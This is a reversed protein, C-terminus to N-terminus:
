HILLRIRWECRRRRLLQRIAAVLLSLNKYMFQNGCARIPYIDGLLDHMVVLCSAFIYVRLFKLPM